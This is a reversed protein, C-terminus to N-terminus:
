DYRIEGSDLLIIEDHEDKVMLRGDPAIDICQGREGPLKELDLGYRVRRGICSALNRWATIVPCEAKGHEYKGSHATVFESWNSDLSRQADWHHILGLNWGLRAIIEAGLTDIEWERGTELMLSTASAAIDDPFDTINVNIGTGIVLWQEGSNPLRVAEMITGSVKRGGLLIDNIWRIEAKVGNSRMAEAIAVGTAIGYISWLSQDIQPFLALCFYIGGEPAWWTRDMRGKPSELCDAWWVTGSAADRGLADLEMMERCALPMLRPVKGKVRFRCGAIAGRRAIVDADAMGLVAAQSSLKDLWSKVGNVLRKERAQKSEVPGESCIGFFSGHSGFCYM